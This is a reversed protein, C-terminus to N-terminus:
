LDLRTTLCKGLGGLEVLEMSVQSVELIKVMPPQNSLAALKLWCGQCRPVSRLDINKTLCRGPGELEVLERSVELLESTKVMPAQNSVATLKM